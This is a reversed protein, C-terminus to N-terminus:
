EYGFNKLISQNNRWGESIKVWLELYVKTGLLNEIDKRANQGIEKLMKGGKGIIIAKHSKKECYIVAHIDMLPKDERENIEIIEVGIGHPVEDKLLELAKERIMEAIILREPQDTIMDRPYYQPGEPLYSVIKKELLDLNIGTLASIALVDYFNYDKKFDDIRSAIDVSSLMDAKNFVAIVPTDIHKLMEAIKKDGNGIGAAADIVFLIADVENLTGMAANVMYEGLKNKPKHLGPTDVFIIQYEDRTLVCQIKSRTTQPKDSVIAIKEGIMANMLTSKGVNPRGIIAIFGSRYENGM